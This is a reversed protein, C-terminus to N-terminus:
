WQCPTPNRYYCRRRKFCVLKIIMTSLTGDEHHQLDTRVALMEVPRVHVACSFCSGSICQAFGLMKMGAEDFREGM